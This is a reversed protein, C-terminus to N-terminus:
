GAWAGFAEDFATVGDAGKQLELIARQGNNYLIPIELRPETQLLEVNKIEDQALSSLGILFYGDTIRASAGKLPTGLQTEATPKMLIGMVNAVGGPAFGESTEFLLEITHSAPLTDDDNRRITLLVDLNRQPVKVLGRLITQEEGDAGPEREATWTVSGPFRDGQDKALLREEYLVASGDGVPAPTTESPTTEGPADPTPQVAVTAGPAATAPTEGGVTRVPDAGSAPGTEVPGATVGEATIREGNKTPTDAATEIEVSTEVPDPSQVAALLDDRRWIGVVAIVAVLLLLAAAVPWASRGKQRKALAEPLGDPRGARAADGRKAAGKAGDKSSGTIKTKNNAKNNGKSAGKRDGAGDAQAEPPLAADWESGIPEIDVEGVFGAEHDSEGDSEATGGPAIALGSTAEDRPSDTSPTERPASDEWQDGNELRTADFAPRDDPTGADSRSLTRAAGDVLATAKALASEDEIEDAPRAETPRAETGPPLILGSPREDAASADSSPEFGPTAILAPVDDAPTQATPGFEEELRRVADDLSDRVRAVQEPAPAPDLSGLQRDLAAKAKDYIAQRGAADLGPERELARKLILHYDAM